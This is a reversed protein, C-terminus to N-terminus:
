KLELPAKIAALISKAAVVRGSDGTNCIDALEQAARKMAVGPDGVIANSLAAGLEMATWKPASHKSGWVGIRHYEAKYSFDYTDLWQPLVVQPVGACLAENYSSAGGHHVSCIAHGTKLIAQPSANLWESIRVRDQSIEAKLVSYIRSGEDIGFAKDGKPIKMKWLVQYKPDSGKNEGQDLIVRMALAMEFALEETFEFHTGMCILVTPGRSLWMDLEPDQHRVSLVDMVIPGCFTLRHLHLHPSVDLPLDTEPRSNVLMRMDKWRPRFIDMLSYAEVDLTAKVYRRVSRAHSDFIVAVILWIFYLINKPILHWPVPYNHGSGSFPFKWLAEARTQQGALTEVLTQPTLVIYNARVHCCAALAPGFNSDIVTIDPKVREIVERLSEFIQVYEPGNWPLMGAVLSHVIRASESRAPPVDFPSSYGEKALRIHLADFLPKGVIEHFEIHHGSHPSMEKAFACVAEVAPQLSKFSAYHVKVEFDFQLLAQASALSVNAQGHESTSLFLVSKPKSAM